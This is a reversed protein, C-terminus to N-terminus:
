WLWREDSKDGIYEKISGFIQMAIETNGISVSCIGYPHRVKANSYYKSKLTAKKVCGRPLNLINCWYQNIEKLTLGNDEYYQVSISFDEFSVDFYKKLFKVFFSLLTEDSNTIRVYNKCKNGEGWFLACGFAYLPDSNQAKKRGEKQYERRKNRFNESHNTYAKDRLQLKEKQENTLNIDRVWVSVSSKAVGVKKVIDNLSFGQRRLKRCQEKEQTKMRSGKIIFSM